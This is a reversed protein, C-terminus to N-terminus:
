NSPDDRRTSFGVSGDDLTSALPGCFFSRAGAGNGDMSASNVSLLYRRPVELGLAQATKLSRPCLTAHLWRPSSIAAFRIDNGNEVLQKQWVVKHWQSESGM